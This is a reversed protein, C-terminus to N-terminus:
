WELAAWHGQIMKELAEIALSNSNILIPHRAMTKSVRVRELLDVLQGLTAVLIDVGRELDRLQQGIPAGGYAVVMKTIAVM